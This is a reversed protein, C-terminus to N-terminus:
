ARGHEALVTGYLEELAAVMRPASFEELVRRRALAGIKARESAEKSAMELMAQAIQDPEEPEILTGVEHSDIVEVIGGRGSAVTPLGSAMAELLALPIGERLSTTVFVDLSRLVEPIDSRFGVVAVQETLNLEAALARLPEEEPGTGAILLRCQPARDVVRRFAALLTHNNKGRSLRGVSGFWIGDKQAVPLRRRAEERSSPAPFRAYDIGNPIAVVRDPALARNSDIVDRRVAECVAIIRSARRYLLRNLARRGFTRASGLGHITVLLPPSRRALAAALVAPLTAKYLHCNVLHIEEDEILSKLRWILGPSWRAVRRKGPALFHVKGATDTGGAAAGGSLYCLVTRFRHQDLRAQEKLLAHEATFRPIVMLVNIM